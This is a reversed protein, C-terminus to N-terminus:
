QCTQISLGLRNAAAIAALRVNQPMSRSSAALLFDVLQATSSISEAVAEIKQKQRANVAKRFSEEDSYLEDERCDAFCGAPHDGIYLVFVNRVGPQTKNPGTDIGWCCQDWRYFWVNATNQTM